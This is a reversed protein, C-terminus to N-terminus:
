VILPFLIPSNWITGFREVKRWSVLWGGFCAGSLIGVLKWSCRKGATRRGIRTICEVRPFGYSKWRHERQCRHAFPRFLFLSLSLSSSPRSPSPSPFPSYYTDICAHTPENSYFITKLILARRGRRPSLSSEVLAFIPYRSITLEHHCSGAPRASTFLSGRYHYFVNRPTHVRETRWELEAAKSNGGDWRERASVRTKYKDGHRNYMTFISGLNVPLRFSTRFKLVCVFHGDVPKNVRNPTRPRLKHEEFTDHRNVRQWQSGKKKNHIM